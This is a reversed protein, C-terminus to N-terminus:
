ALPKPLIYYVSEVACGFSATETRVIPRGALFAEVAPGLYGQYEPDQPYKFNDIAGRYLLRQAPDLLFVRPTQQTFWQRAVKGGNDHLIPFTLKREAATARIQEFSEGTRSAVAVLGIEPYKEAFANLYDDYHVCHSCTESWFVVVSGKKGELFSSLTRVEGTIM